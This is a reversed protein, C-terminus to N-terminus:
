PRYEFRIINLDKAGLLNGLVNVMLVALLVIVLGVIAFTITQKAAATAKEDGGAAIFRIGGVIILIISIAGVIALLYNIIRGILTALQTLNDGYIANSNGTGGGDPVAGWALTSVSQLVVVALLIVSLGQKM